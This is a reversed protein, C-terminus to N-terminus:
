SLRRTLAMTLIFAGAGVSLLAGVVVYVRGWHVRNRRKAAMRPANNPYEQLVIDWFNEATTEM